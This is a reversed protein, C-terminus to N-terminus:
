KGGGKIPSKQVDGWWVVNPSEIRRKGFLVSIPNGATAIPFGGVEGPKANPPKPALAYSLVASIVSIAIAIYAIIDLGM